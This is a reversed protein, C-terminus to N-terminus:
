LKEVVILLTKNFIKLIKKRRRLIQWNIENRLLSTLIKQVELDEEQKTHLTSNKVQM